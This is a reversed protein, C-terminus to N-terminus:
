FQAGSLAGYSELAGTQFPEELWHAHIAKLAPIRTAAAEVDDGWIQGADVCVLGESGLGRAHLRCNTQM